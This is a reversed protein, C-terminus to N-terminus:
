ATAPMGSTAGGFRKSPKERETTPIASCPLITGPSSRSWLCCGRVTAHAHITPRGPKPDWTELQSAGGALWLLLVHKKQKGIDSAALADLPTGLGALGVGLATAVGGQLFLRRDLVHEPSGCFQRRFQPM